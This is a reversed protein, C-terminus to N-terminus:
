LPRCEASEMFHQANELAMKSCQETVVYPVILSFMLYKNITDDAVVNFDANNLYILEDRSFKSLYIERLSSMYKDWSVKQPCEEIEKIVSFPLDKNCCKWSSANMRDALEFGYESTIKEFEDKELWLSTKKSLSAAM